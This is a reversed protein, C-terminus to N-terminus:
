ISEALQKGKCKSSRDGFKTFDELSPRSFPCGFVEGTKKVLKTMTKDMTKDMNGEPLKVYSHFIAM